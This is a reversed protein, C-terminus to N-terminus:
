LRAYKLAEKMHKEKLYLIFTYVKLFVVAREEVKEREIFSLKIRFDGYVSIPPFNFLHFVLLM